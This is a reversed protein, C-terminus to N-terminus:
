RQLFTRTRKAESDRAETFDFIKLTEKFIACDVTAYKKLLEDRAQKKYMKIATMDNKFERIAYIAYNKNVRDASNIVLTYRM